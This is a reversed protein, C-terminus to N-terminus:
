NLLEQIEYKVSDARVIIGTGDFYINIKDDIECSIEYIYRVLLDLNMTLEVNGTFILRRIKHETDEYHKFSVITTDPDHSIHEITGDHFQNSEEIIAIIENIDDYETFRTAKGRITCDEIKPM